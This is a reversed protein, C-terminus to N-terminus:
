VATRSFRSVKLQENEWVLWDETDEAHSTDGWEETPKIGDARSFGDKFWTVRSTVRAEGQHCQYEPRLSETVNTGTEPSEHPTCQLLGQRSSLKRNVEADVTNLM